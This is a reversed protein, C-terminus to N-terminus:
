EICLSILLTSQTVGVFSPGACTNSVDLMQKDVLKGRGLAWYMAHQHGYRTIFYLARTYSEQSIRRFRKSTASLSAPDDLQIFILLLVDDLCPDLIPILM